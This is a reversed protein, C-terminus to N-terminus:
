YLIEVDDIAWGPRPGCFHCPPITGCQMPLPYFRFRVRVMQGAFATLDGSAPPTQGATTGSRFTGPVPDWITCNLNADVICIEVQGGAVYFDFGERYRLDIAHGAPPTCLTFAESTLTSDQCTYTGGPVTKACIGGTACLPDAGVGWNGGQSLWAGQGAQFTGEIQPSDCRAVVRVQTTGTLGAHHCSMDVRGPSVGTVLGSSPDVTAIAPDATSWSPGLISQTTGNSRLGICTLPYRTGSHVHPGAPDVQLALFIPDVIVLDATAALATRGGGMQYTASVTGIGPSLATLEGDVAISALAPPSSQPAWSLDPHTTVDVDSSGDSLDALARLPVQDQTEASIPDPDIWLRVPVAATVCVQATDCVQDRSLLRAHVETCGEALALFRGPGTRSLITQSYDLFVVDSLVSEPEPKDDYTALVDLEIPLGVPGQPNAPTIECSLLMPDTVTVTTSGCVAGRPLACVSVEVTGVSLARAEGTSRNVSLLGPTGSTWALASSLEEQHGDSFIGTARFTTSTGVRMRLGDPSITIQELVAEVAVVSATDSEGSPGHTATVGCRGPSLATVVALANVSCAATSATWELGPPDNRETGDTYVAHAALQTTFSVTVTSTAPSVVIREVEAATVVLEAVGRVGDLTAAVSREGPEMSSAWGPRGPEGFVSAPTWTVNGTVDQDIREGGPKEYTATAAFDVARGAPTTAREPTVALAILRDKTLGTDDSCSWAAGATMWVTVLCFARTKTM